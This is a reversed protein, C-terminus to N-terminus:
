IGARGARYLGQSSCHTLQNACEEPLSDGFERMVARDIQPVNAQTQAM